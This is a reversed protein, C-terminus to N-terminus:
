ILLIEELGVFQKDRRWGLAVNPINKKDDDAMYGGLASNLGVLLLVDQSRSFAVFYLRTLDDFERNKRSRDGKGLQGYNRIEDELITSTKGKQGPFRLSSTKALNRKFRSGVDVIVFPFELGKSQHVSMINVRNKPLSELLNEDIFVEGTAIPVFINWIAEKISKLESSDTKSFYIKASFENLFGTQNITKAIAELYVLGETDKQFYDFWRVLKYVLDILNIEDPWQKNVSPNSEDYVIRQQWHHVFDKLSIPSDPQPSSEIFENASKRWKKMQNNAKKPLSKMRKQVKTSPDICELILGCLIAVPKVDQLDQGRPNFVEIQKRKLFKRLYYPLLPNGHASEKPSYTLIAIDELSGYEEDLNINIKKPYEKEPKPNFIDKVKYEIQKKKMLNNILISLDGALKEVDSRFMGLIPISKEKIKADEIKPKGVVRAKQYEDDIEVFHNCLNIIDETSRYNTSLNVESVDIDLKKKIRNKFETFLNVAAGRFRYLSQDDDGVVTINGSLKKKTASEALKFYIMEQILNTDQYEDILVVKINELFEDLKGSNLKDLFFSELMAFDFMANDRLHKEYDSIADLTIMFGKDNIESKLAKLDVQDYFIRNKIKLLIESMKFPSSIKERDEFKELYEMLDKNLYRKNKFLGEKRMTSIAVFNEIILPLDTGPEKYMKLLDVAISDITGTILQSFDLRELNKNKSDKLIAKKLKTGWELIRSYLEKAAKNTFTTAIIEDPSIDDVFIFKLIKLVIVTTKGSGPGAVIFLSEDRGASIAENQNSNSEIDRKLVKIVLEKFQEYDIM